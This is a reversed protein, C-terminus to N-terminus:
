PPSFRFRFHQRGKFFEADSKNGEAREPFAEQRSLNIFVRREVARIKAVDDRAKRRLRSFRVLCQNIQQASDGRTSPLRKITEGPPLPAPITAKSL